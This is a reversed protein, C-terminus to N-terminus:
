PQNEQKKNSNISKLLCLVKSAEELVTTYSFAEELLQGIAFSGHGYLMVVKREKLVQAVDDDLSGPTLKEGWGLVTVRGIVNYWEDRPAIETEALSLATAYPPH